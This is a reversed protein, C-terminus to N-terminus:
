SGSKLQYSKRDTNPGWELLVNISLRDLTSASFGKATKVTVTCKVPDYGDRQLPCIRKTEVNNKTLFFPLTEVPINEYVDTRNIESTTSWSMANYLEAVDECYSSAAMLETEDRAFAYMRYATAVIGTLGVALVFSAILVEILTFGAHTHRHHPLYM